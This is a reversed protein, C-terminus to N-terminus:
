GKIMDLSFDLLPADIISRGVDVIDAGADIVKPLEDLTLGGAFAIQVEDRWGGSESAKTVAHLDDLEGTDIMLIGAGARVAEVAEELIPNTEGKLQVAILREEELAKARSVAAGVGGFMRVYNKDLYIFPVDTIRMGAGGTAIAQRLAARVEPAVKKWAGCVVKIKGQSAKIFEAAATAVGSPKSILGLLMEEAKAVQEAEGKGTLVVAGNVLSHGEPAVWDVHLSLNTLMQKLSNVGSFLGAEKARITFTFKKEKLPLFLFERLEMNM